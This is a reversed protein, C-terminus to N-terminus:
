WIWQRKWMWGGVRRRAGEWCGRAGKMVGCRVHNCYACVDSHFYVMLTDYEILADEWTDSTLQLVPKGVPSPPPAPPRQPNLVFDQLDDRYFCAHVKTFLHLLLPPPQWRTALFPAVLM